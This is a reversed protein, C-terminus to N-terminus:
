RGDRRLDTNKDLKEKVRRIDKECNSKSDLDAAKQFEELAAALNGTRELIHALYLHSTADSPRRAVWEHYLRVVDPLKGQQTYCAGLYPSYHPDLQIAAAYYKEAERHRGLKSCIAGVHALYQANNPHQAVLDLIVALAEALKEQSTLANVLDLKLRANEPMRQVSDRLCTEARDWAGLDMLHRAIQPYLSAKDCDKLSMVYDIQTLAAKNEKREMLLPVISLQAEARPPIAKQLMKLSKTKDWVAKFVQPLYFSRLRLSDRYIELAKELDGERQHYKGLSFAFLDETPSLWHAKRLEAEARDKKQGLAEKGRHAYISGLYFHYHADLPEARIAALYHACAETYSYENSKAAVDEIRRGINGHAEALRPEITVAKRLLVIRDEPPMQSEPIIWDRFVIRRARYERWIFHTLFLGAVLIAIVGPVQMWRIFRGESIAEQRSNGIGMKSEPSVQSIALLSLFLFVNAPMEFNVTLAGSILPFAAAILCAVNLYRTPSSSERVMKMSRAALIALVVGILALGVIGMEAAANFYDSHPHILFLWTTPETKYIRFLTPFSGLGGGFLPFDRIIKATDRWWWLREIPKSSLEAFRQGYQEGRLWLGLLLLLVGLGVIFCVSRRSRMFVGVLVASVALTGAMAVVAGRSGLCFIVCTTLLAFGLLFMQSPRLHTLFQGLTATYTRARRRDEAIVAMSFALGLALPIFMGIHASFTNRNVFVSHVSGAYRASSVGYIRGAIGPFLTSSAVAVLLSGFVVLVWAFKRARRQTPIAASLVVFFLVYSLLRTWEWLSKLPTVSITAWRTAESDSIDHLAGRTLELTKPSLLNLASEPLPLFSLASVALLLIALFPLLCRRFGHREVTPISPALCRRVSLLAFLVLITTTTIAITVDHVGGFALSNFLILFGLGVFMLADLTRGATQVWRPNESRSSM